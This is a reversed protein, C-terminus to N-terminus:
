IVLSQAAESILKIGRTIDEDSVDGFGLRVAGAEDESRGKECGLAVGRKEAERLIDGSKLGDFLLRFSLGGGPETYGAINKMYMGLYINVLNYKRKYHDRIKLIHRDYGGGRIYRDFASQIFGSTGMDASYKAKLVSESIVRPMVMYGLRLGPMLIKSFSKIYIVKNKYDLSRLSVTKEPGYCFDSLNDEEAIYFDYKYSLELLKRKKAASYSITTPTQYYPMVYVLGPKHVKLLSELRETDMGDKEMDVAVINAGRSMFAEVAGMYTPKEVFVCDGYSLVARSIIDIGQQAGSIIQIKDPLVGLREGITARLSAIGGPNEYRFARGKEEELVANFARRFDGVPFLEESVNSSAFNIMGPRTETREDFLVPPAFLSGDKGRETVYVGSGTITYVIHRNELFKYAAAVTGPNVGERLALGRVTPLKDGPKYIGKEIKEFIKDGILRYLPVGEQTKGIYAAM